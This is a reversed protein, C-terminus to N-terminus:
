CPCAPAPVPAAAALGPATAEPRRSPPPCPRARRLPWSATWRGPGTSWDCVLRCLLAEEPDGHDLPGDWLHYTAGAARLRQHMARPLRVFVLNAQPEWVPEVGLSRLGEVLLSLASNAARAMELWLGDALYAAM